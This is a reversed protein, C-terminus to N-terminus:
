ADRRTRSPERSRLRAESSITPLSPTGYGFAADEHREDRDQRGVASNTHCSTTSRPRPSSRRAPSVPLHEEARAHRDSPSASEVLLSVPGLTGGGPEARPSRVTDGVIARSRGLKMKRSRAHRGGADVAADGQVPEIKGVGKYAAPRTNIEEVAIPRRPPGAPRLPCRGASRSAAARDEVGGQARLVAPM